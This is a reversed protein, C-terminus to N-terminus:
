FADSFGLGRVFDLDKFLRFVLAKLKLVPLVYQAPVTYQSPGPKYIYQWRLSAAFFTRRKIALGNLSPPPQPLPRALSWMLFFYNKKLKKKWRELKGIAM